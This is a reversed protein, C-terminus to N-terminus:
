INKSAQRIKSTHRACMVFVNLIHQLYRSDAEFGNLELKLGDPYAGHTNRCESINTQATAAHKQLM